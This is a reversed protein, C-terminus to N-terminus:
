IEHVGPRRVRYQLPRHMNMRRDGLQKRRHHTLKFRENSAAVRLVVPGPMEAAPLALRLDKTALPVAFGPPTYREFSALPSITTTTRAQLVAPRTACLRRLMEFYQGDAVAIVLAQRPCIDCEGVVHSTSIQKVSRGDGAARFWSSVQ